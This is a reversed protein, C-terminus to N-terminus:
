SPLFCTTPMTAGPPASPVASVYRFLVVFLVPPVASVILLRPTRAVRRLNRRSITAIDRLAAGPAPRARDLGAPAPATITTM